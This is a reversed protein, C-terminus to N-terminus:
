RAGPTSAARKRKNFDQDSQADHHQQKDDNENWDIHSEVQEMDGGVIVAEGVNVSQFRLGFSGCYRM